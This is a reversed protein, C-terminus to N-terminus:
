THRFFRAAFEMVGKGIEVEPYQESDKDNEGNQM